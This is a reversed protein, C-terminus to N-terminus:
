MKWAKASVMRADDLLPRLFKWACIDLRGFRALAQVFLQRVGMESHLNTRLLAAEGALEDLPWEAAEWHSPSSHRRTFKWV